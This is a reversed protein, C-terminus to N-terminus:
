SLTVQSLLHIQLHSKMISEALNGVELFYLVVAFIWTKSCLAKLFM